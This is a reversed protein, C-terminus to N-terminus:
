RDFFSQIDILKVVEDASIESSAAEEEFTSGSSSAIAKAVQQRSMRRTQGASRIFSDYVTGGRLHVPKETAEPIHIILLEVKKFPIIAHDLTIAPVVGARAINGLKKIVEHYNANKIGVPQGQDNVGFVLFGGGSQNAFGSLHQALKEGNDSLGLKWDIENREHPLPELSSTLSELATLQWHKEVM